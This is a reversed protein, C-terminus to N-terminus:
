TARVAAALADDLPTLFRGLLAELPRADSVEDCLMCDLEDSRMGRYGGAAAAQRDAEAVSVERVEYDGAKGFSRALRGLRDILARTTVPEPGVLDFVRHRPSAGSAAALVCAAADRAAIPQMRFRGDGVREVEGKAMGRVLGPVFVDGPGVIYSPRFVAVALGSDFLLAEATLKSLFYGNTCRPTMGYHAVGLGSFFVLRAAGARAAASAVSRTAEVNVSEYRAAGREAGIQALHVVLTAGELARTLADGALADLIVPRGGAESVVRAAADSRVLGVVEWGAASAV